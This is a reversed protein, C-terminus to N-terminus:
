EEELVRRWAACTLTAIDKKKRLCELIHHDVTRQGSPGTALIDLYTVSKSQGIRHCRDESQVRTTYSFDNSLYVAVAAQTLNLGFGGAHPQALLVRRQTLEQFSRIERHRGEESQGGYIQFCSIDRSLLSYLRERERKWRCWVIIANESSLERHKVEDCLWTLKENSVDQTSENVSMGGVHGSTLQCLRLLKTAAHPVPLTENPPLTLLCERRLENYIEWTNSELAVSRAEYIKPPLDLCDEKTRRLVYPAFRSQLDEVNQYAVIQKQKFGGLIAYRHRFHYYNKFGQLPGNAGAAMVMGQSWMDIPGNAVPTGTLLWRYRCQAGILKSGLSQKAQYNKLFSSEDCILLTNGRQCWREITEVHEVNPLLGYSLTVIPLGEHPNGAIQVFMKTRPMYEGPAFQAGNAMLKTLEETWSIKVAAPCLVLIRNIREDQYLKHAAVLAQRTKGLGMEDALMASSRQRLFEIGAIQHKYLESM